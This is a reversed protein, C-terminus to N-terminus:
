FTKNGDTVRNNASFVPLKAASQVPTALNVVSPWLANGIGPILLYVANIDMQKTLHGM